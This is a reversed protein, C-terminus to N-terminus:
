DQHLAEVSEPVQMLLIDKMTVDFALIDQDYAVASGIDVLNRVEPARLHAM